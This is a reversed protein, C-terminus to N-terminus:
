RNTTMPIAANAIGLQRRIEPNDFVGAKIAAVFGIQSGGGRGTAEPYIVGEDSFMKRNISLVHQISNTATKETGIHIVCRKLKKM